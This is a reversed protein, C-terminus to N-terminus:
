NTVTFSFGLKSVRTNGPTGVKNTYIELEAYDSGVYGLEPQYVYICDWNTSANRRIESVRYHQAQRTIRAGEEDGSVTAYQYTDTNRLSVSIIPLPQTPEKGSDTCATLLLVVVICVVLIGTKGRLAVFSNNM